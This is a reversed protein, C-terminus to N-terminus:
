EFLDMHDGLVNGCVKEGRRHHAVISRHVVHGVDRLTEVVLLILVDVRPVGHFLDILDIQDISPEAKQEEFMQRSDDLLARHKECSFVLLQKQKVDKTQLLTIMEFVFMEEEVIMFVMLLIVAIRLPVVLM